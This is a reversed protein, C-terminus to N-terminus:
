YYRVPRQPATTNNDVFQHTNPNVMTDRVPTPAPNSSYMNTPTSPINPNYQTVPPNYDTAPAM